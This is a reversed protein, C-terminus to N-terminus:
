CVHLGRVPNKGTKCGFSSSEELATAGCRAGKQEYVPKTFEVVSPYTISHSRLNHNLLIWSRFEELASGDCSGM